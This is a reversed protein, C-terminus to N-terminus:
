GCGGIVSVPDGLGVGPLDVTVKVEVNCPLQLVGVPAIVNKSPPVTRPVAGRLPLAMAVRIVDNRYTPVWEMVAVYGPSKLKSSADEFVM